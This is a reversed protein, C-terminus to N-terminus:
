SMSLLDHMSIALRYTSAVKHFLSKADASAIDMYSAILLFEASSVYKDLDLDMGRLRDMVSM